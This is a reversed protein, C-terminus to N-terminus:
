IRKLRETNAFLRVKDKVLIHRLLSRLLNRWRPCIEQRLEKEDLRVTRVSGYLMKNRNRYDSTVWEPVQEALLRSMKERLGRVLVKSRLGPSFLRDAVLTLLIFHSTVNESELAARFLELATVVRDIRPTVHAARFYSKYAPEFEADEARIHLLGSFRELFYAKDEEGNM